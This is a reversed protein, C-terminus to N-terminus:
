GPTTAATTPPAASPSPPTASPRSSRQDHAAQRGLGRPRPHHRRPPRVAAPLRAAAADRGRRDGLRPRPGGRRRLARAGRPGPRGAPKVVKRYRAVYGLEGPEREHSVVTMALRWGDGPAGIMDAAPVRAGDFIVEGFERTIGNIMRLPRQEIGPQDMPSPSPPSARTSPCTTTPAPWCSAGTPSTPTAPGCRTAPSSTSTATGCRGPHAALGPRLRRRARQLGPVLAGPRQRHRAPLAAARGRRRARPHGQGPLRPEAPAPRRGRGARRRRDGRLRHAPGARRHRDALVHRLLRRRLAGPALRGPGGLLRRLDVLAPLGPNNEALWAACGSGSPPRRPRTM